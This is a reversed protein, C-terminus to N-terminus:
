AFSKLIFSESSLVVTSQELGYDALRKAVPMSRITDLVLADKLSNVVDEFSYVPIDHINTNIKNPDDDIFGMLNYGQRKLLPAIAGGNSGAGFVYIEKNAFPGQPSTAHLFKSLTGNNGFGRDFFCSCELQLHLGFSKCRACVSSSQKIEFLEESTMSLFDGLRDLDNTGKFSCPRVQGLHDLILMHKQLHCPVDSLTDIREFHYIGRKLRPLVLNVVDDSNRWDEYEHLLGEEHYEQTMSADYDGFVIGYEECLSKLINADEENDKYRHFNMLVTSQSDKTYKGIEKLNKLALKVNGGRHGRSYVEQSFGSFSVILTKMASSKMIGAYDAVVNLCTSLICSHGYQKAKALIQVIDPHLLPDDWFYLYILKQGHDKALKSFIQECKELPLVELPINHAFNRRGAVCSPCKLNCRNTTALLVSDFYKLNTYKM